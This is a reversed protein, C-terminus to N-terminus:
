ACVSEAEIMRYEHPKKRNCDPFFSHIFGERALRKKADDYVVSAREFSLDDETSISTVEHLFRELRDDWRGHEEMFVYVKRESAPRSTLVLVYCESRGKEPTMTKYLTEIM